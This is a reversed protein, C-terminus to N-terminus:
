LLQLICSFIVIVISIKKVTSSSIMYNVDCWNNDCQMIDLCNLAIVGQIDVSYKNYLKGSYTTNTLYGNDLELAYSVQYQTNYPCYFTYNLTNYGKAYIMKQYPTYASILVHESKVLYILNVIYIILVLFKM